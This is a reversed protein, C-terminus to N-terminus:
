EKNCLTFIKYNFFPCLAMLALIYPLFNLIGYAVFSFLAIITCVALNIKAIKQCQTYQEINNNPKIKSKKFCFLISKIYTIMPIILLIFSTIISSMLFVLTNNETFYKEIDELTIMQTASACVLVIFLFIQIFGYIKLLRDKLYKKM